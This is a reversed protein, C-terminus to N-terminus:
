IKKKAKVYQNYVYLRERHDGMLSRLEAITLGTIEHMRIMLSAGVTLKRHRIKSLVPPAVGLALSLARDNKLHLKGILADLLLNPDFRMPVDGSINKSDEFLTQSNMTM